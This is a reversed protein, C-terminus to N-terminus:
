AISDLISSDSVFDPVKKIGDGDRGRRVSRGVVDVRLKVVWCSITASNRQVVVELRDIALLNKRALLVQAPDVPDRLLNALRRSEQRGVQHVVGRRSNLVTGLACGNLLGENM